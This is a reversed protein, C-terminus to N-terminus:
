SYLTLDVDSTWQKGDPLTTYKDLLVENLNSGRFNSGYLRTGRLNSGKLNAKVFSAGELNANSFDAYSIDTGDFIGENIKTNAFIGNQIICDIFKSKPMICSTFNTDILVASKINLNKLTASTFNVKLLYAFDFTCNELMSNIFTTKEMKSKTLNANLLHLNNLSTESINIGQLLELSIMKDITTQSEASTSSHRLEQCAIIQQELRKKELEELQAMKLKEEQLKEKWGGIINELLLYTILTGFFDIGLGQFFSAFWNSILTRPTLILSMANFAISFFLLLGLIIKPFFDPKSKWRLRLTNIFGKM